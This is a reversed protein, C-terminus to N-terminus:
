CFDLADEDIKSDVFANFHKIFLFNQLAAHLMM